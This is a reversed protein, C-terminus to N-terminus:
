RRPLSGNDGTQPPSQYRIGNSLLSGLLLIVIALLITGGVAIFRDLKENHVYRSCFEYLILGLFGGSTNTIVDTIDTAGIAFILQIMEATLSLIFVFALKRWFNARKLNVSLLLGLPVFVIFNYIAERLNDHSIDAFPVLNLSRTQSDLVSSLDFSFKLLVLWILSLLYFVLLIKALPKVQPM